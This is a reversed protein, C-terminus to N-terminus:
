QKQAEDLPPRHGNATPEDRWRLDGTDDLWATRPPRHANPTPRHATPRARGYVYALALVAMVFGLAFALSWGPEIRGTLAYRTFLVGTLALWIELAHRRQLRRTRRLLRRAFRDIRTTPKSSIM